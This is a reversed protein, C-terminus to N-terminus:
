TLGVYLLFAITEGRKEDSRFLGVGEGLVFFAVEGDVVDEM